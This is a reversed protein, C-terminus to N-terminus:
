RELSSPTAAPAPVGTRVPRGKRVYEEETLAGDKDTDLKLFRQPADSADRQQRSFEELTLRGDRDRDQERFQARRADPTQQPQSRNAANRASPTTKIQPIAPAEQGLLALLEKVVAPQAAALNAKEQPDAQYDYLELVAKDSKRGITNWEVLRYRVTRVARGLVERRPYVHTVYDRHRSSPDEFLPAFSRGDLKEPAPLGALAALTPYIDVTEVLASSSAGGNGPVAILLPIRAAREFNTHKGWIGFDGLHYGHDGWVVVITNQALGHQELAELVRGACADAYSTAAYYGHILKRKSADDLVERGQPIERYKRLEDTGPGAAEPSGEPLADREPLTLKTADILDWYKKPAVFPLHPSRFGVALFFPKGSEKVHAIKKVAEAAILGDVYVDDPVDASETATGYVGAGRSGGETASPRNGPLVYYDAKPHLPKESWSDLDDHNGHGTHLIKGVAATHYGHSRFHQTLTVADPRAARFNTTLDYIGLTQPRLGTMLANRSPACVAQNCYARDLRLSRAALRDLNPTHANTDGYCGLAPMADDLAIFLVNPRDDAQATSSSHDFLTTWLLPQTIANNRRIEFDQLDTKMKRWQALYKEEHYAIGGFLLAPQRVPWGEWAHIDPKLPWSGKDALYPYLYAVARTMSRGDPTAFTWLNDESTSLLQCLAAMNDLQFISYAYPKTRGLELPFGGDLAMQVPVFVEKFQRRCEELLDENQTLTAFAAVQLWYAVAHNNKAKAENKGKDSTVFWQTYDAFWRTIGELDEAKMAKSGRLAMVALPVEVLHLTDILGTGRAPTPKGVIAQAHDLSPHMRTDENVFFVKLMEVAKAAYREEGTLLYAAALASTADRLAMLTERHKNFNAPNSQGDRMIYPKGDPKAPDPWYYDSMSFFEDARGPSLPSQHQMISLPALELAKGALALIRARDQEAVM